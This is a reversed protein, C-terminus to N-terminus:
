RRKTCNWLRRPTTRKQVLYTARSVHIEAIGPNAQVAERFDEGAEDLKDGAARIVARAHLTFRTGRNSRWHPTFLSRPKIGSTLQALADGQFYRAIASGPHGNVLNDAWARCRCLDDNERLSLLLGLFENNANTAVCAHAKVWRLVPDPSQKPDSSVNKLLEVVQTWDEKLVASEVDTMAVTQGAASLPIAALLAVGLLFFSIRGSLRNALVTGRCLNLHRM